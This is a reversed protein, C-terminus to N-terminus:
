LNNFVNCSKLPILNNYTIIIYNGYIIEPFYKEIKSIIIIYIILVQMIDM